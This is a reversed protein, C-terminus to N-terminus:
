LVRRTFVIQRIFIPSQLAWVLITVSLHPHLGHSVRPVAEEVRSGPFGSGDGTTRWQEPLHRVIPLTKSVM